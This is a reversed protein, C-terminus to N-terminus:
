YITFFIVFFYLIQDGLLKKKYILHQVTQISQKSKSFTLASNNTGRGLFLRKSILWGRDRKGWSERERERERYIYLSLSLSLSLQPFLSLPQNIDFRKNRPRPVFLEAKVNEFDLCDM